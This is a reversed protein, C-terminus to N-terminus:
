RTKGSSRCALVPILDKLSPYIAAIGEFDVDPLRESRIIICPSGAALAAQLGKWTDEIILCKEPKLGLKKQAELFIDPFPKGRLSRSGGIVPIGAPALGARALMLKVYEPPTNSAIASTFDSSKIASLLERAGPMPQIPARRCLDDFYAASREKIIEVDLGALHHRDIEGAVGKGYHSWYLYYEAEEITHGFEQFALSNAKFHIPESDVLTGDFDLLISEAYKFDIM